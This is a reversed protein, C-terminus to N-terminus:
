AVAVVVLATGAAVAFALVIVGIIGLVKGAYAAGHGGWAGGAAEIERTAKAGMVWAFPALVGCLVFSLIGLVLATTAQPHVPAVGGHAVGPVGGEGPGVTPMPLPGSSGSTVWTVALLLLWVMALVASLPTWMPLGMDWNDIPTPVLDFFLAGSLAGVVTLLAGVLTAVFPEDGGRVIKMLVTALVGVGVVGVATSLSYGIVQGVGYDPDFAYRFWGERVYDFFCYAVWALLVVGTATRAIRVDCVKASSVGALCSIGETTEFPRGAYAGNDLLGSGGDQAHARNATAEANRSDPRM